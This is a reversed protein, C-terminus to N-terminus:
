IRVSSGTELEVDVGDANRKPGPISVSHMRTYDLRTWGNKTQIHVAQDTVILMEMQSGPHNEYRGLLIENPRLAIGLTAVEGDPVAAVFRKMKRLIRHARVIPGRTGM